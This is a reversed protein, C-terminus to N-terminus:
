LASIILKAITGLDFVQKKRELGKLDRLSSVSTATDEVWGVWSKDKKKFNMRFSILGDPPM